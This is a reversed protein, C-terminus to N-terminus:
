KLVNTNRKPLHTRAWSGLEDLAPKMAQGCPTLSYEVSVPPGPLVTREVLGVDVLENLRDTLMRQSVGDVLRALESFRASGGMLTGLILGTWRKGLFAFVPGLEDCANVQDNDVTWRAYLRLRKLM